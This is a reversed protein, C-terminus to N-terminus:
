LATWKHKINVCSINFKLHAQPPEEAEEKEKSKEIGNTRERRGQVDKDFKAEKDRIVQLMLQGQKGDGPFNSLENMTADSFRSLCTDAIIEKKQVIKLVVKREGAYNCHPRSEVHSRLLQFFFNNSPIKIMMETASPLIM